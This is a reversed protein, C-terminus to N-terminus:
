GTGTDACIGAVVAGAAVEVIFVRRRDSGYERSAHRLMQRTSIAEGLYRGV